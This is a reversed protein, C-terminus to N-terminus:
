KYNSKVKIGNLHKLEKPGLINKMIFDVIFGFYRMTYWLFSKFTPLIVEKGSDLNKVISNAVISPNGAVKNFREVCVRKGNVEYCDYAKEAFGTKMRAPLVVSSTVRSDRLEYRLSRNFAYVASKTSNYITFYPLPTFAVVSGVNIIRGKNRKKMNKLALSVLHEYAAINVEFMNHIEETKIHELKIARGLGANNILYDIKKSKNLIKKILNERFNHISLDGSIIKINGREKICEKQLELLKEKRRAVVYVTYGKQCLLKAIEKGLGSSAGTVLSIVSM